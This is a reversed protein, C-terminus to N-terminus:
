SAKVTGIDTFFYTCSCEDFEVVNGPEEYYYYIGSGSYEKM